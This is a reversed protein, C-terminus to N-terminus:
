LAVGASGPAELLGGGLAPGPESCFLRSQHLMQRSFRWPVFDSMNMCLMGRVLWDAPRVAARAQEELFGDRCTPSCLQQTTM